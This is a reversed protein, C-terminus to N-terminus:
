RTVGERRSSLIGSFGLECDFDVVTKDKVKGYFGDAEGEM